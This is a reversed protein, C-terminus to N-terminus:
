LIISLFLSSFTLKSSNYGNVQIVDTGHCGRLPPPPPPPAQPATAGGKLRFFTPTDMPM